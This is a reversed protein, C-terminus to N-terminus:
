TVKQRIAELLPRFVYTSRHMYIGNIIFSLLLLGLGGAIGLSLGTDFFPQGLTAPSFAVFLIFGYYAVIMVLLLIHSLSRRKKLLLQYEPLSRIQDATAHTM